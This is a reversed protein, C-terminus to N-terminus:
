LTPDVFVDNTEMLYSTVCFHIKNSEPNVINVVSDDPLLDVDTFMKQEALSNYKNWIDWNQYANGAEPTQDNYDDNHGAVSPIPNSVADTGTLTPHINVSANFPTDVGAAGWTSSDSPLATPYFKYHQRTVGEGKDNMVLHGTQLYHNDPFGAGPQITMTEKNSTEQRYILNLVPPGTNIPDLPFTEGDLIHQQLLTLDALNIAGNNNVDYQPHFGETETNFPIPFAIPDLIHQQLRTVDGINVSGNNDTDGRKNSPSSM